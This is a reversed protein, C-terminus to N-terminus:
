TCDYNMEAEEKLLTYDAAAMWRKALKWRLLAAVWQKVTEKEDFSSSMLQIWILIKNM